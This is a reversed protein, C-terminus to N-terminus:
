VWSLAWSCRSPTWSADCLTGPRRTPRKPGCTTVAAQAHAVYRMHDYTGTMRPDALHGVVVGSADVVGNQAQEAAGVIGRRQHPQVPHRRELVRLDVGLELPVVRESRHLVTHGGVQDRVAFRPLRHLRVLLQHLGSGAVGTHGERHDGVRLAVGERRRQRDLYWELLARHEPEKAGVHQLELVGQTRRGPCRFARDGLRHLDGLTGPDVHQVLVDVFRIRLCVVRRGSGLDPALRLAGDGM